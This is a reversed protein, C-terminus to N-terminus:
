SAVLKKLETLKINDNNQAAIQLATLQIKSRTPNPHISVRSNGM